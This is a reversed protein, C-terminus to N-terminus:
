SGPSGPPTACTSSMRSAPKSCPPVCSPTSRNGTTTSPKSGVETISVLRRRVHEPDQCAQVLGATELPRLARSIAPDSVPLAQALRHQTVPQIDELTGLLRLQSYSLGGPM